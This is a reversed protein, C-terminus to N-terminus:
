CLTVGPPAIYQRSQQNTIMEQLEEESLKKTTMILQLISISCSSCLDTDIFNFSQNYDQRGNFQILPSSIVMKCCDCTIQTNKIEQRM